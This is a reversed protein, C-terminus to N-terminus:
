KSILTLCDIPAFVCEKLRELLKFGKCLMDAWEHQQKLDNGPIRLEISRVASALRPKEAVTSLWHAVIPQNMPLHCDSFLILSHDTTGPDM